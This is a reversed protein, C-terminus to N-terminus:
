YKKEFLNLYDKLFHQPNKQQKKLDRRRRPSLTLRMSIDILKM